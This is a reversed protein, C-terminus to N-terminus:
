QTARRQIFVCRPSTCSSGTTKAARSRWLRTIAPINPIINTAAACSQRNQYPDVARVGSPLYPRQGCMESHLSAVPFVPVALRTQWMLRDTSALPREVAVQRLLKLGCLIACRESNEHTELLSPAAHAAAEVTGLNCPNRTSRTIVPDNAVDMGALRLLKPPGVPLSKLMLYKKPQKRCTPCARRRHRVLAPPARSQCAPAKAASSVYCRVRTRFYDPVLFLEIESSGIMRSLM